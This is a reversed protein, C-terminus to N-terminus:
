REGFKRRKASDMLDRQKAEERLLRIRLDERVQANAVGESTAGRYLSAELDSARLMVQRARIEAFDFPIMSAAHPPASGVAPPHNIHMSAQSPMPRNRPTPFIGHLDGTAAAAARALNLSTARNQVDLVAAAHRRRALLDAGSEAMAAAFALEQALPIGTPHRLQPVETLSLVNDYMHSEPATRSSQRIMGHASSMTQLPVQQEASRSSPSQAVSTSQARARQNSRVENIKQIAERFHKNQYRIADNSLWLRAREAELSDIQSRERERTRQSNIRNRAKKVEDWKVPRGPPGDEDDAMRINPIKTAITEGLPELTVIMAKTSGLYDPLVLNAPSGTGLFLNYSSGNRKSTESHHNM